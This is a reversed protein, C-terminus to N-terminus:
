SRVGAAHDPHGAPSPIPAASVRPMDAWKAEHAAVADVRPGLVATRARMRDVRPDVVLRAQRVGVRAGVGAAVVLGALGAVVVANVPGGGVGHRGRRVAGDFELDALGAM